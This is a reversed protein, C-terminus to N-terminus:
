RWILVFRQMDMPAKMGATNRKKRGIDIYRVM